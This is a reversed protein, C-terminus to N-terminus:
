ASKRGNSFDDICDLFVQIIKDLQDKSFFPIPSFSVLECKKLRDYLKEHEKSDSFEPGFHVLHNRLDQLLAVYRWHKQSEDINQELVKNAYIISRKVGRHKLDSPSITINKKNQDMRVLEDLNQELTAFSSIFAARYLSQRTANINGIKDRDETASLMQEFHLDTVKLAEQLYAWDIFSLFRPVSYTVDKPNNM